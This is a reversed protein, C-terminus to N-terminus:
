QNKEELGAPLAATSDLDVEALGVNVASIAPAYIRDKITLSPSTFLAGAVTVTVAM